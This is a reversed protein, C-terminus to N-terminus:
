DAPANKRRQAIHWLVGAPDSIYAVRLGCPQLAPAKHMHVGYNSPLDLALIHQWWADLDDVLLQMMCNEAWGENYYTQLIFSSPWIGFIAVDAEVPKRL